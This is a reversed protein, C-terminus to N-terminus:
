GENRQTLFGHRQMAILASVLYCAAQADEPTNVEPKIDTGHSRRCRHLLSLANALFRVGASDGEPEDSAPRRDPIQARWKKGSNQNLDRAMTGATARDNAPSIVPRFAAEVAKIVSHYAADADSELGFAARWANKLHVAAVDEPMMAAQYVLQMEASLRRILGGGEWQIKWALRSSEFYQDLPGVLDQLRARAWENPDIDHDEHWGITNSWAQEYVERTRWHVFLLLRKPEQVFADALDDPTAARVDNQLCFRLGDDSLVRKRTPPSVIMTTTVTQAMVWSFVYSSLPEVLDEKFPSSSDRGLGHDQAYADFDSIIGDM